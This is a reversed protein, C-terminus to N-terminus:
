GEVSQPFGAGRLRYYNWLIRCFQLGSPTTYHRGNRQKLAREISLPESLVQSLAVASRRNLEAYTVSVTESLSRRFVIPMREIYVLDGTDIGEDIRHITFGTETSGEYLQWIVSQAGRFDPLVEHHINLMGLRTRQYISKPLYGNGLSLGIDCDLSDIFSLVNSDKLNDVSLLPVGFSQAQQTLSPLNLRFATNAYWRRMRIGNIAGLVGIALVKRFVRARSRRAQARTPLGKNHVIGAVQVGGVKM